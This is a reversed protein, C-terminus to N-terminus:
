NERLFKRLKIGIQFSLKFAEQVSIVEIDISLMLYYGEHIVILDDSLPNSPVGIDEVYFTM